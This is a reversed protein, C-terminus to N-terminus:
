AEDAIQSEHHFMVAGRSRREDDRPVWEGGDNNIAAEDYCVIRCM